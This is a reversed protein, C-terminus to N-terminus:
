FIVYYKRMKKGVLRSKTSSKSIEEILDKSNAIAVVILKSQDIWDLITDVVSLTRDFLM